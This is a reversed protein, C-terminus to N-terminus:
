RNELLFYIKYIISNVYILDQISYVVEQLIDFDTSNDMFDILINLGNSNIFLERFVVNVVYINRILELTVITHEKAKIFYNGQIDQLYNLFFVFIEKSDFLKSSILQFNSIKALTLIAYDLKCNNGKNTKSRHSPSILNNSFGESRIISRNKAFLNNNNARLVNILKEVLEIEKLQEVFKELKDSNFKLYGIKDSIISHIKYAALDSITEPVAMWLKFLDVYTNEDYTLTSHNNYFALLVQLNEQKCALSFTEKLTYDNINETQFNDILHLNNHTIFNNKDTTYPEEQRRGSCCNGM